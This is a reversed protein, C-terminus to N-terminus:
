CLFDKGRRFIAEIVIGATTSGIQNRVFRNYLFIDCFPRNSNLKINELKTSMKFKRPEKLSLAGRHVISNSM